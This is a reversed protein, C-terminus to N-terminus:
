KTQSSFRRMLKILHLRTPYSLIIITFPIQLIIWTEKGKVPIGVCACMAFLNLAITQSSEMVNVYQEGDDDNQRSFITPFVGHFNRKMFIIIIPSSRSFREVIKDGYCRFWRKNDLQPPTNIIKKAGDYVLIM